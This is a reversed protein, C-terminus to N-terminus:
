DFRNSDYPVGVIDGVVIIMDERNLLKGKEDEFREPIVRNLLDIPIRFVKGKSSWTLDKGYKFEKSTPHVRVIKPESRSLSVHWENRVLGYWPSRSDEVYQPGRGLSYGLDKSMFDDLSRAIKSPSYGYRRAYATLLEFQECLYCWDVRVFPIKVIRYDESDSDANMECMRHVRIM